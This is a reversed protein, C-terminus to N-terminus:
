GEIRAFARVTFTGVGVLRPPVATLRVPRDAPLDWLNTLHELVPIGAALLTTHVPRTRDGMDDINVSDIGVLGVGADVLRDAADATLHPADQEYDATGFHRAHGTRVLVAGGAAGALDVDALDVARRDEADVLTTPLDVLRELPLSALDTADAFRHFPADVYTGTNTCITVNAIHFTIGAGYSRESADRSLLTTVTPGPLGPYTHMGETVPHSLEIYRTAAM